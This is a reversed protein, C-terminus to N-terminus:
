QATKILKLVENVAANRGCKFCNEHPTDMKFHDQCLGDHCLKAVEAALADADIRRRNNEM